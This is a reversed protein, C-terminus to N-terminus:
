AQDPSYETVKVIADLNLPGYIHPFKEAQDSVGEIRLEATLLDLRIWLLILGTQGAFFRKGTASVQEPYSCHIFGELSLSPPQYGGEIRAEDWAKRTTIHCIL